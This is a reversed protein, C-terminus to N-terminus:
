TCIKNKKIFNELFNRYEVTNEPLSGLGSGNQWINNIYIYEFKKEIAEKEM